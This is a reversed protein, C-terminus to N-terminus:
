IIRDSDATSDVPVQVVFDLRVAAGLEANLWDRVRLQLTSDPPSPLKVTATCDLPPMLCEHEGPIQTFVNIVNGLMLNGTKDYFGPVTQRSLSNVYHLTIRQIKEVGFHLLWRP